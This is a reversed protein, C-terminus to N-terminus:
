FHLGALPMLSDVNLYYFIGIITPSPNMFDVAFLNGKLRLEKSDIESSDKEPSDGCGFYERPVM